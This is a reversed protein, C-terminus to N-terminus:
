PVRAAGSLMASVARRVGAEFREPSEGLTESHRRLVRANRQDIWVATLVYSSGLTGASLTIISDVGLAGAIEAACVTDDCGAVDKVRELGLMADIDAKSLVRLRGRTLNDLTSLVLDELVQATGPDAAGKAQIPLVAASSVPLDANPATSAPQEPTLAAALASQEAVADVLATAAALEGLLKSALEATLADLVPDSTLLINEGDVSAELTTRHVVAGAPMVTVTADMRASATTSKGWNNVLRLQTVHGGIAVYAGATGPEEAAEAFLKAQGLGKLVAAQLGRGVPRCDVAVDINNDVDVIGLASADFPEVVALAQM